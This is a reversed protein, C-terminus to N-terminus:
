TGWGRVAECQIDRMSVGSKYRVYKVYAVTDGSHYVTVCRGIQKKVSRIAVANTLAAKLDSTYDMCCEQDGKTYKYVCFYYAKGNRAWEGCILDCARESGSAPGPSTTIITMLKNVFDTSTLLIQVFQKAAKRHENYTDVVFTNANSYTDRLGSRTRLAHSDSYYLTSLQSYIDFNIRVSQDKHTKAMNGSVPVPCAIHAVTFNDDSLPEIDKGFETTAAFLEISHFLLHPKSLIDDPAYRRSGPHMSWNNALNTDGFLRCCTTTILTATLLPFITM